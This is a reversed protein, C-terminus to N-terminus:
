CLRLLPGGLPVSLRTCGWDPFPIEGDPNKDALVPLRLPTYSLFFFVGCENSFYLLPFNRWLPRQRSVGNSWFQLLDFHLSPYSQSGFFTQLTLSERNILPFFADKRIPRSQIKWNRSSFRLGDSISFFFAIASM